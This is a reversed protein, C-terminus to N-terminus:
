CGILQNIIILILMIFLTYCMMMWNIQIIMILIKQTGSYDKTIKTFFSKEM